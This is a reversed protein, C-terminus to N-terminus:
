YQRELYQQNAVPEVESGHRFDVLMDWYAEAEDAHSGNM